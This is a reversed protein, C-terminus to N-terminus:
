DLFHREYAPLSDLTRLRQTPLYFQIECVLMAPRTSFRQIAPPIAVTKETCPGAWEPGSRGQFCAAQARTVRRCGRGDSSGNAVRIWRGCGDSPARAKDEAVLTGRVM